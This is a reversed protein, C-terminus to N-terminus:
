KFCHTKSFGVLIFKFFEKWLIDVFIKLLLNNKRLVRDWVLMLSDISGRWCLFFFLFLLLYLLLKLFLHLLKLWFKLHCLAVLWIVFRICLLKFYSLLIFIKHILLDCSWKWFWHTTKDILKFILLRKIVFHYRSIAIVTYIIIVM